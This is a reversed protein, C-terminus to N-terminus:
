TTAASTLLGASCTERVGAENGRSSRRLAHTRDLSALSANGGVSMLLVLGDRKRDEPALALGAAIAEAPTTFEVAQGAIAIRGTARGPHAGFLTELLETRGAGVLGFIGLVEGRRLTLSVHDVLLRRGAGAAPLSINEARLLEDGLSAASKLFLEQSDRGAMLRVIADRSLAAFAAEGVVRVDRM